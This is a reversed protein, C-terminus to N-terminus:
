ITIDGFRMPRGEHGGSFFDAESLANFPLDGDGM